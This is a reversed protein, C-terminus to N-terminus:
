DKCSCNCFRWVDIMKMSYIYDILFIFINFYFHQIFLQMISLIFSFNILFCDIWSFFTHSLICNSFEFIQFDWKSDLVVIKWFLLLFNMSNNTLHSKIKVLSTQYFLKISVNFYRFSFVHYWLILYWDHVDLLCSIIFM